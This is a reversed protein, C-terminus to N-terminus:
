KLKGVNRLKQEWAPVFRRREKKARADWGWLETAQEVIRASVSFEEAVRAIAEARKFDCREILRLVEACMNRDRAATTPRSHKKGDLKFVDRPAKGGLVKRLSSDIWHQADWTLWRQRAVASMGALESARPWSEDPPKRSVGPNKLYAEIRERVSSTAGLRQVELHEKLLGGAEVPDSTMLEPVVFVRPAPSNAKSM